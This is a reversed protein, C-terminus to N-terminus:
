LTNLDSELESNKM